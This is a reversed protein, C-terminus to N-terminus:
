LLSNRFYQICRWVLNKCNNMAYRYAWMFITKNIRNRDMNVFRCWQRAIAGWQDVIPPSLGIDGQIAANATYKGVGLFNRCAKNHIANIGKNEVIGWISSGYHIVPLVISEYVKRFASFLLGGYAKSKAILLGLARGASKAVHHATM